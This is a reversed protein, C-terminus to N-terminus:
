PAITYMISCYYPVVYSPIASHHHLILHVCYIARCPIVLVNLLIIVSDFKLRINTPPNLAFNRPHPVLSVACISAFPPCLQLKVPGQPDMCLILTDSPCQWPDLGHANAWPIRPHSFTRIPSTHRSQHIRVLKRLYHDWTFYAGMHKWFRQLMYRVWGGSFAPGGGVGLCKRASDQRPLALTTSECAQHQHRINSFIQQLSWEVWLMCWTPVGLM